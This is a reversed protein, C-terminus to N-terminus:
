ATIFRINFGLFRFITSFQMAFSENALKSAITEFRVSYFEDKTKPSKSSRSSSYDNIFNDEIDVNSQLTIEMDYLTMKMCFMDHRDNQLVNDRFDTRM